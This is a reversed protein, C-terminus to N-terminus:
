PAAPGAPTASCSFLTVPGRINTVTMNSWVNSGDYNFIYHLNCLGDARAPAAGLMAAALVGVLAAPLILRRRACTLYSAM